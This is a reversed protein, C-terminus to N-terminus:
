FRVGDHEILLIYLVLSSNSSFLLIQLILVSTLSSRNKIVPPITTEYRHQFVMLVGVFIFVNVSKVRKIWGFCFGPSELASRCPATCSQSFRPGPKCWRQRSKPHSSFDRAWCFCLQQVPSPLLLNWEDCWGSLRKEYASICPARGEASLRVCMTCGCPNWIWVSGDEKGAM